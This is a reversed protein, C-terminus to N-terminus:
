NMLKEIYEVQIKCNPCISLPGQSGCLSKWTWDPSRFEIWILKDSDLGCKPCKQHNRFKESQLQKDFCALVDDWPFERAATTDPIFTNKESKESNM